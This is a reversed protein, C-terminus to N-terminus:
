TPDSEYVAVIDTATTSTTYVRVVELDFKGAPANKFLIVTSQEALVCNVDGAVGIWLSSCAGNTLDASDSLNAAIAWRGKLRRLATISDTAISDSKGQAPM